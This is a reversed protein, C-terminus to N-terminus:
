LNAHTTVSRQQPNVGIGTTHLYAIARQVAILDGSILIDLSGGEEEDFSAGVINVVVEYDKGVRYLIPAHGQASNVTKLRVEITSTQPVSNEPFTAIAEGFATKGDSYIGNQRLYNVASEVDHTTGEIQLAVFGYNDSVRGRRINTTVPFLKGLRWLIPEGVQERNANLEVTAVAM